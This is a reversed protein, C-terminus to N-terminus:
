RPLAFVEVWQPVDTEVEVRWRAGRESPPYIWSSFTTFAPAVPVGDRTVKFSSWHSNYPKHRYVAVFEGPNADFDAAVREIAKRDSVREFYYFDRRLGHGERPIVPRVSSMLRIGRAPKGQAIGLATAVAEPLAAVHFGPADGFIAVRDRLDRCHLTYDLGISTSMAHAMEGHLTIPGPIACVARALADRAAVTVYTGRVSTEGPHALDGLALVRSDILGSRGISRAGYAAAILSLVLLAVAGGGGARLWRWRSTLAADLSLGLVLASLPLLFYVLYFSTYSRVAVGATWALALLAIAGGFWRRRAPDTARISAGLGLVAAIVLLGTRWLWVPVHAARGYTDGIAIPLEFYATRIAVLVDLPNVRAIDGAIRQTAGELTGRQEPPAFLVPLFWAAIVFAMAVLHAIMRPGRVGTRHLVVAVLPFYFLTSTHIQVALGLMAAAAYTLAISRRRDAAILLILTAVVATEVWNPHFFMIWQYIAFSPFAAAAAMSIGLSRGSMRRGLMYLLPFKLSAVIAVYISVAVFTPSLLLPPAQLWIWAPGAYPGFNIPGPGVLPLSEGRALSLSAGLDRVTDPWITVYAAPLCYALMLLGILARWMPSLTDPPMKGRNGDRMGLPKRPFNSTAVGLQGEIDLM